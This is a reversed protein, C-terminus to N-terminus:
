DTGRTLIGKAVGRPFTAWAVVPVAKKNVHGQQPQKGRVPSKQTTM